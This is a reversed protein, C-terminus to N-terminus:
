IVHDCQVVLLRFDHTLDAAPLCDSYANLPLFEFPFLPWDFLENHLRALCSFYCFKNWLFIHVAALNLFYVKM